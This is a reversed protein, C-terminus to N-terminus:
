CLTQMENQVYIISLFGDYLLLLLQRTVEICCCKSSSNHWFMLLDCFWFNVRWKMYGSYEFTNIVTQKSYNKTSSVKHLPFIGYWTAKPHVFLADWCSLCSFPIEKWSYTCRKNNNLALKNCERSTILSLIWEFNPM